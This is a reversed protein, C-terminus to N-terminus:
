SGGKKFKICKEFVGVLSQFERLDKWMLNSHLEISAVFGKLSLDIIQTQFAKPLAFQQPHCHAANAIGLYNKLVM